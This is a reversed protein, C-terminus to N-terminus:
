KRSFRPKLCQQRFDTSWFSLKIETSETGNWQDIDRNKHGYWIMQVVIAKYQAKINYLIVGVVKKEEEEELNCWSSWIKKVKLILKDIEEFFSLM